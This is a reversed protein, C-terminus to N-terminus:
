DDQERLRFYIRRNSKGKNEAGIIEIQDAEGTNKLHTGGCAEQEFGEVSVIRIDRIIEPLGKALKTVSPIKVAEERPLYKIVVPHNEALIQNAKQEYGKIKERDFNELDFDIRTKDAAIQNGTIEAGTEKFIVGSLVHSATHYRMHIYRRTWDVQGHVKDGAKLGDRDVHHIIRGKDKRVSGVVYDENNCSLIGTDDPQGGSAAYFATRDLEIERGDASIITADFERLYCDKLYLQETM